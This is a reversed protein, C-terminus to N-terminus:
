PLVINVVFLCFTSCHAVTVSTVKEGKKGEDLCLRGSSQFSQSFLRRKRTIFQTGGLRVSLCGHKAHMPVGNEDLQEHLDRRWERAADHDM